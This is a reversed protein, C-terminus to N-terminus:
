TCFTWCKTRWTSLRYLGGIDSYFNNLKQVVRVDRV